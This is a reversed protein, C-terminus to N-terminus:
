YRAADTLTTMPTRSQLAAAAGAGKRYDSFKKPM